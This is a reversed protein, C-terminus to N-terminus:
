ISSFPMKGMCCNKYKKGSGCPCPDNRGIKKKQPQINKKPQNTPINIRGSSKISKRFDMKRVWEMVNAPPQEKELQDAMFQMYPHIHSFFDYYGDCLYNLGREGEPTIAIRNKPCGGNCAFRYDCEMCQSPLTAQKDKGFQLMKESKALGKLHDKMINGLYQNPYVFHDCTYLDGNHELCPAEGCTPSFACLGPREGVWNALAVDFHQVYYNGVDQRVWEDFISILFHGFDEPNVSWPALEVDGKYSPAVLRLSEDPVNNAIREVIPIFQLYHSGIEKLFHYVEMPHKANVDNVVSLTNWEVQYEKLLEISQMIREWTPAGKKYVRYHDHLDKPGDISIGVLFGNQKFFRCWEKDLLTGNTQFANEIRKKGAYKNQIEIAKKYYDIPLLSPEGGQWVFQVVPVEHAEINQRIFTEMVDVPLKTNRKDKYLKDKELYYCYACNLNCSAGIPKVMVQFATPLGIYLSKKKSM